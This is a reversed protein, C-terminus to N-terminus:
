TVPRRTTNAVHRGTCLRSAHRMRGTYSICISLTFRGQAGTGPHLTCHVWPACRWGRCLSAGSRFMVMVLVCRMVCWTHVPGSVCHTVCSAALAPRACELSADTTVEGSVGRTAGGVSSVGLTCWATADTVCEAHVPRSCHRMAHQRLEHRVWHAVRGGSVGTMVCGTHVVGGYGPCVRSAGTHGASTRSAHRVSTSVSSAGPTVRSAGQAGGRWEM